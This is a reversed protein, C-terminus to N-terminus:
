GETVGFLRGFLCGAEQERNWESKSDSVSEMETEKAEVLLEEGLVVNVFWGGVVGVIMGFVILVDTERGDDEAGTRPM